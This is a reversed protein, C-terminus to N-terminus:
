EDDRGDPVDDDDPEMDEDDAEAPDDFNGWAEPHEIDVESLDVGAQSMREVFQKWTDKATELTVLHPLAQSEHHLQLKSRLHLYEFFYPHAPVPPTDEVYDAMMDKCLQMMGEDMYQDLDHGDAMALENLRDWDEKAYPVGCQVARGPKPRRWLDWPRGAHVHSRNDQRRIRHSNWEKVFTYMEHRIQPTFIYVLAIKDAM